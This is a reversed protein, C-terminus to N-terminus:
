LAYLKTYMSWSVREGCGEISGAKGNGWSRGLFFHLDKVQLMTKRSTTNGRFGETVARGRIDLAGM